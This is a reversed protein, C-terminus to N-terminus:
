PTHGHPQPVAVCGAQLVTSACVRSFLTVTVLVSEPREFVCAEVVGVCQVYTSEQQHQQPYGEDLQCMAGCGGELLSANSIRDELVMSVVCTDEHMTRSSIAQQGGGGWPRECGGLDECFVYLTVLHPRGFGQFEGLSTWGNISSIVGGGRGGKTGQWM